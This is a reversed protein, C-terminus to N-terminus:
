IGGGRGSSGRRFGAESRTSRPKQQGPATGRTAARDVVMRRLEGARQGRILDPEAAIEAARKGFGTNDFDVLREKNANDM